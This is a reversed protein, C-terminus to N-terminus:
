NGQPLGDAKIAIHLHMFSDTQPTETCERRYDSPISGEPLLKMSDWVTANSVVATKARIQKGNKLQVGVARGGEVQM